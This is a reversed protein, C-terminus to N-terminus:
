SAVLKSYLQETQSVMKEVSFEKTREKAKRAMKRRLEKDKLLKLIAKSLAVSNKPQVLIGYDTLQYPNKAVKDSKGELLECLGGVASVIVPIGFSMAELTAIGFSEDLSPQVYLDLTPYITAIDEVQGRFDVKDEIKLRQSLRKLNAKEPGEGVIILKSLLPKTNSSIDVFARILYDVGKRKALSGVFGITLENDKKRHEVRKEKVEVGNYIVKIKDLRTIGRNVLFDAVAKSVTITKDTFFDLFWLWFIQLFYGLRNKLRYDATWLHETYVVKPATKEAFICALRGLLGGRLGHTHVIIPSAPEGKSLSKILRHIKKIVKFDWKSKMTVVEVEIGKIERLIGALPGPPCVCTVDFEKKDLGKVLGLVAVPAGSLSSDGIVELIKIKKM